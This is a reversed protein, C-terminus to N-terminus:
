RNKGINPLVFLRNMKIFPGVSVEVLGVTAHHPPKGLTKGKSKRDSM